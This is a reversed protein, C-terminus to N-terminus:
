PSHDVYPWLYQGMLMEAFERPPRYRAVQVAPEIGQDGISKRQNWHWVCTDLVAQKLGGPVGNTATFGARYQVKYNRQGSIWHSQNYEIRGPLLWGDSELGMAFFSGTDVRDVTEAGTSSYSVVDIRTISVLPGQRLKLIRTGDGSYYETYNAAKIDRGIWEEVQNTGLTVLTGLYSDDQTHTIGIQTKLESTSVIATGM